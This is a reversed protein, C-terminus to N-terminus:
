RAARARLRSVCPSVPNPLSRPLLGLEQSHLQTADRKAVSRRRPWARNPVPDTDPAPRELGRSLFLDHAESRVPNELLVLLALLSEAEAEDIGTGLGDLDDAHEAAEIEDLEVALVPQERRLRDVLHTPDGIAEPEVHDCPHRTDIARGDVRVEIAADGADPPRVDLGRFLGPREDVRAEEPGVTLSTPAAPAAVVVVVGRQDVDRAPSRVSYM